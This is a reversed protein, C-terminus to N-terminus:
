DEIKFWEGEKTISVDYQHRKIIARNIYKDRISFGSTSAQSVKVGKLQNNNIKFLVADRTFKFELEDGYEFGMAKAMEENFYIIGYPKISFIEKKM